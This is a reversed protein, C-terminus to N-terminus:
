TGLGHGEAVCTRFVRVLSEYVILSLTGGWVCVCLRDELAPLDSPVLSSPEAQPPSSEEGQQGWGMSRGCGEWDWYLAPCDGNGVHRPQM